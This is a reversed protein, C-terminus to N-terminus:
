ESIWPGPGELPEGESPVTGTNHTGGRQNCTYVITDALKMFAALSGCRPCRAPVCKAFTIALAGSLLFAVILFDWSLRWTMEIGFWSPDVIGTMVALGWALLVCPM